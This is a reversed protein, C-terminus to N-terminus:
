VSLIPLAKTSILHVNMAAAKQDSLVTSNFVVKKNIKNRPSNVKVQIHSDELIYCHTTWYMSVCMKMCMVTLVDYLKEKGTAVRKHCFIKM